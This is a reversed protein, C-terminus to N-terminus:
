LLLVQPSYVVCSYTLVFGQALGVHLLSFARGCQMEGTDALAVVESFRNSTQAFPSCGKACGWAAPLEALLLGSGQVGLWACLRGGTRDSVHISHQLM